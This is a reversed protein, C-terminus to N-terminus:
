VAWWGSPGGTLVSPPGEEKLARPSAPLRTAAHLRAVIEGGLRTTPAAVHPIEDLTPAVLRDAAPLSTALVCALAGFTRNM